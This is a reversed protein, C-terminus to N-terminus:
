TGGRVGGVTTALRTFTKGVLTGVGNINSLTFSLGSADQAFDPFWGALLMDATIAGDDPHTGVVRAGWAAPIGSFQTDLNASALGVAARVFAPTLPIVATGDWYVDGGGLHPDTAVAAAPSGGTQWRVEVSYIGASVAPFTGTYYGTSGQEAMAVDYSTWNSANFAEPTTGNLVTGVATRVVAYVTLGTTVGGIQIEAAM